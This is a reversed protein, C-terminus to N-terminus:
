AEACRPRPADAALARMERLAVDLAANGDTTLEYYRRRPRGERAAARADEWLGRIFGREEMRVLTPYVTGSPLGTRDMLDLGYRGGQRLAKLIAITAQGLRRPM